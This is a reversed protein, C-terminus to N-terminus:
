PICNPQSYSPVNPSCRTPAVPRPTPPPEVCNKQRYKPLNPNCLQGSPLPPPEPQVPPTIVPPPPRPAPPVPPPPVPPPKPVTDTAPLVDFAQTAVQSLGDMLELVYRGPLVQADLPWFQNIEGARADCTTAFLGGATGLCGDLPPAALPYIRAYDVSGNQGHVGTLSATFTGGLTWHLGKVHVRHVGIRYWGRKDDSPPVVELTPWQRAGIVRVTGQAVVRVGGAGHEGVIQYDGDPLGEPLAYDFHDLPGAQYQGWKIPWKGNLTFKVLGNRPFASFRVTILEGQRAAQPVLM